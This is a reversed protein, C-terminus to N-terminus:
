LLCIHYLFKNFLCLKKALNVTKSNNENLNINNKRAFSESNWTLVYKSEPGITTFYNQDMSLSIDTYLCQKEIRIIKIQTYNLKCDHVSLNGFASMAVLKNYNQVFILDDVRSKFPKCQYLLENKEFDIVKIIGSNFGCVFHKSINPTISSILDGESEFEYVEDKHQM